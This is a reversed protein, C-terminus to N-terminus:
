SASNYANYIQMRRKERNLVLKDADFDEATFSDKLKAYDSMKMHKM